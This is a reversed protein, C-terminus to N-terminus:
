KVRLVLLGKSVFLYVTVLKDRKNDSKGCSMEKVGLM